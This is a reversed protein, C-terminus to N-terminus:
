AHAAGRSELRDAALRQYLGVAQALAQTDTPLDDARRRARGRLAAAADPDALLARVARALAPADGPPVLVAGDGVVQATGGSDTAVIAAGARLAEQVILPQGEWLSPVVVVDAAALLDPVDRRTGLLDVPLRRRTTEATLEARLPGDGAVVCRVPRDARDARDTLEAVADLLVPLGKQVALRAVTVLLATGPPV